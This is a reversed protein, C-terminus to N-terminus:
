DRNSELMLMSYMHHIISEACGLFVIVAGFLQLFGQCTPSVPLCVCLPVQNLGLIQLQEAMSGEEYFARDIPPTVFEFM